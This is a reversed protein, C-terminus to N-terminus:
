SNKNTQESVHLSSLMKGQTIQSDLTAFSSVNLVSHNSQSKNKKIELLYIKFCKAKCM